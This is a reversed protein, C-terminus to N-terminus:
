QGLSGKPHRFMLKQRIMLKQHMLLIATEEVPESGEAAVFESHLVLM